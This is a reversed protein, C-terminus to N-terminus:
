EAATLQQSISLLANNLAATMLLLDADLRATLDEWGLEENQGTILDHFKIRKIAGDDAIALSLNDNQELSISTVLKDQLHSQVEDASLLHNSFKVKAGEEDPAKLEAESGLSFGQPLAKDQLWLQLHTNLKHTDLWPLAPLSGLAKRLLALIDEAKSASSSNIVLWQNEPDYYGQTLSSRSFARPLLSLQLEEKLSQKEKKSLPRGKEQELAELKPQMEENIVAAPLIKEQRKVAFFIIQGNIHSYHKISPHLPFSFGSRVLEQASLPAFKFEALAQDWVAVDTSLPASLKYVRVNKFWM